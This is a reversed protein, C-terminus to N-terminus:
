CNYKQSVAKIALTVKEELQKVFDEPKVYNANNKSGQERFYDVSYVHHVEIKDIEDFL